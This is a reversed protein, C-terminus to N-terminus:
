AHVVNLLGLYTMKFPTNAIKFDIKISAISTIKFSIDAVIIDLLLSNTM